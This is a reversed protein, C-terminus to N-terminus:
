PVLGHCQDYGAGSSEDSRVEHPRQVGAALAVDDRDVVERACLLHRVQAVELDRVEHVLAVEELAELGPRVLVGRGDQVLARARVRHLGVPAVHHLVVVLVRHGQQAPAPRARHAQDVSGRGRHVAGAALEALRALVLRREVHVAVGLEEEVLDHAALERAHAQLERAEAIEVDVARALGVLAAHRRDREVEEVLVDGVPAHPEELPAGAVPGALLAAVEHRDLVDHAHVEEEEVVRADRADEVHAGPPGLAEVVHGRGRHVGHAGM